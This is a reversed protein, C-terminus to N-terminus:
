ILMESNEYFFQWGECKGKKPQNGNKLSYRLSSQPIGLERVAEWGSGFHLETGDPKIAIIAKSSISLAGSKKESQAKKWEETRPVGYMPHKEGSKAVSMKKKTEETHPVGYRPNNEGANAKSIKKKHEETLTKGSMAVSLKKKTEETHTKGSNAVSLKKKAEETKPVGTTDFGTSTAKARNAFQPNVAVDFFDHLKIEIEAAEKRTECVFLITKETPFFTKDYFSGLYRIDEEPLCNCSRRGIYDRGWEEYSHYVYHHKSMFSRPPTPPSNRGRAGAVVAM